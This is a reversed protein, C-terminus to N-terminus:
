KRLRGARNDRLSAGNRASCVQVGNLQEKLGREDLAFRM